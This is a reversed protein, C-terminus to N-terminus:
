VAVKKEAANVVNYIAPWLAEICITATSLRIETQTPNAVSLSAAQGCANASMTGGFLGENM